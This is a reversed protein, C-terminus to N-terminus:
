RETGCSDSSVWTEGGHCLEGSRCWIQLIPLSSELNTYPWHHKVKPPVGAKCLLEVMAEHGKYVAESLYEAWHQSHSSVNQSLAGCQIIRSALRMDGSEVASCLAKRAFVERSLSGPRCLFLLIEAGCKGVIWDCIENIQSQYILNNTSLFVFHKLFVRLVSAPSKNRLTRLGNLSGHTEMGEPPLYTHLDSSVRSFFDSTVCLQPLDINSQSLLGMMAMEFSTGPISHTISRRFGGSVLWRTLKSRHHHFCYYVNMSLVNLIILFLCPLADRFLDYTAGLSKGLAQIEQAYDYWPLNRLLFMRSIGGNSEVPPTSVTIYDPLVAKDSSCWGGSLSVHRAIEKDLKQRTIKYGYFAFDSDKGEQSRKRKVSSVSAWDSGSFYKRIGWSALKRNYQNGSPAAM